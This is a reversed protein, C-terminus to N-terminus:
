GHITAVTRETVRVVSGVPGVRSRIRPLSGFFRSSPDQGGPATKCGQGQWPSGSRILDSRGDSRHTRTKALLAHSSAKGASAPFKRIGFRIAPCPHGAEQCPPRPGRSLGGSPPRFALGLRFCVRGKRSPPGPPLCAGGSAVLCSLRVKITIRGEIPPEEKAIAPVQSAGSQPDL